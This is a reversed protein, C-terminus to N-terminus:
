EEETWTSGDLLQGSLDAAVDSVLDEQPEVSPDPKYKFNSSSDTHSAYAPGAKVLLSDGLNAGNTQIHITSGRVPPNQSVSLTWWKDVITKGDEQSTFEIKITAGEIFIEPRRVENEIQAFLCRLSASFPVRFRIPNLVYNAGIVNSIDKLTENIAGLIAEATLAEPQLKAFNAEFKQMQSAIDVKSPAESPSDIM